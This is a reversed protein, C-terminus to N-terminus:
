TYYPLYRTTGNIDVEMYGTPTTTNSPTGTSQASLEKLNTMKIHTNADGSGHQSVSFSNSYGSGNERKVQFLLGTTGAGTYETDDGVIFLPGFADNNWQTVQLAHRNDHQPFGVKNDNIMTTSSIDVWDYTGDNSRIQGPVGSTGMILDGQDEITIDGGGTQIAGGETDLLGGGMTLSQGDLDLTSNEIKVGSSTVSLEKTFNGFSTTSDSSFLNVENGKLNIPKATYKNSNSNWDDLVTLNYGAHAGYVNQDITINAQDSYNKAFGVFYDGAWTTVGTRGHTNNPDLTFNYIYLDNTTNHEGVISVADGNSDKLMMVPKDWGSNDTELELIPSTLGGSSGSLLANSGDFTFNAEGELTDATGSGTIVRNDANNNITTATGTAAVTLTGAADDYTLTINSGETMLTNVQDDVREATYYLNTQEPVDATSVQNTGTGFDILTDDIGDTKLTVAGSTVTFHDTGFSAIGKNSTSADEGSIEGSSIDIGEGASFHARVDSASPGAYTIVGTSSNYAASGDGGADTVSIHARAEAASPGTYTIVGTTNNYALSGDGGSDTVSLNTLQIKDTNLNTFNADLEVFTLESGKGSRTVITSM